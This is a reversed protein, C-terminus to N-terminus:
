EGRTAAIPGGPQREVPWAHAGHKAPADDVRDVCLRQLREDDLHAPL